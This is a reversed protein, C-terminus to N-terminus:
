MPEGTSMGIIDSNTAWDSERIQYMIPHERPTFLIDYINKEITNLSIHGITPNIKVFSVKNRLTRLSPINLCQNLAYLLNSGGLCYILLALDNVEASHGRPRYGGELADEILHIISRVSAGNKLATHLLQQLWAIDVQSLAMVLTSHDELKGISHKIKCTDNLTQL